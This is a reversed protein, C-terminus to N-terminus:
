RRKHFCRNKRIYDFHLWDGVKHNYYVSDTMVYRHIDSYEMYLTTDKVGKLLFMRVGDNARIKEVIMMDLDIYHVKPDPKPQTCSYM